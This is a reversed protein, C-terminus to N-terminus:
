PKPSIGTGTARLRPSLVWGQPEASNKDSVYLVSTYGNFETYAILKDNPVVFVGAMKCSRDPASYFQLRGNGVVQRIAQYGPIQVGSQYGVDSLRKCSDEDRAVAVSTVLFSMM